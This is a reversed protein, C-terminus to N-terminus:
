YFSKCFRDRDKVQKPSISNIKAKACHVEATTLGSFLKPSLFWDTKIDGVKKNECFLQFREKNHVAIWAFVNQDKGIHFYRNKFDIITKHLVKVFWLLDENKGGFCGGLVNYTNLYWSCKTNNPLFQYAEAADVKLLYDNIANFCIGKSCYKELVDVKPFVSSVPFKSRIHGADIWVYFDSSSHVISRAVFEVKALWIMYLWKNQFKNEPDMQQQLDWEQNTLLNYTDTNILPVIIFKFNKTEITPNMQKLRTEMTSDNVFVITTVNPSILDILNSFFVYYDTMGGHENGVFYQRKNPIDYLATVVTVSKIKKNEANNSNNNKDLENEMENNSSNNKHFEMPKVLVLESKSNNYLVLKGVDFLWYYCLFSIVVFIVFLSRSLLSM